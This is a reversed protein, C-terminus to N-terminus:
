ALGVAKNFAEVVHQAVERPAIRSIHGVCINAESRLCDEDDPDIGNDVYATFGFYSGPPM